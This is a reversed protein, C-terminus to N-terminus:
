WFVTLEAKDNNEIISYSVREFMKTGYLRSVAEEIEQRSVERDTDLNMKQIITDEDLNELGSIKISSITYGSKMMSNRKNRYAQITLPKKNPLTRIEQIKELAAREGLEIIKEANGFDSTAVGTLLPDIVIDAMERQRKNTELAYLTFTQEMVDAANNLYRRDNLYSGVDVAIIIEAGMDIVDEVPLNRSVGGDVLIRNNIKIPTFASPISMSARMATPLYGSDIIVPEGTEVDTAVCRFPIPLDNFNNIDHVHATLRALLISINQGSVLGQPLQIQNDEIPFSLIYREDHIREEISLHRRYIKDSLIRDWDQESVIAELEDPSYGAAYLGGILAGMSTGSIYDINIGERELIRLVGIHAFGKAGGGSLVLGIKGNKQPTEQSFIFTSTTLIFFLLFLFFIVSKM